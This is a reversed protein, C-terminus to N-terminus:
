PACQDLMSQRVQTEARSSEAPVALAWQYHTAYDPSWRIGTYGCGNTVNVEGQAIALMAYARARRSVPDMGSPPQVVVGFALPPKQPRPGIPENPDDGKTGGYVTTHTECWQIASELTQRPTAASEPSQSSRILYAFFFKAATVCKDSNWAAQGQSILDADSYTQAEARGALTVCGLLVAGRLSRSIRTM